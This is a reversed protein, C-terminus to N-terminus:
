IGDTGIVKVDMEALKAKYEQILEYYRWGPIKTMQRQIARLEDVIGEGFKKQLALAYAHINGQWAVNCKACQPWVNRPEFYTSLGLSRPIFHGAQLEQWRRRDGCSICVNMGEADTGRRRVWVSFIKWFQAKTSKKRKPKLFSGSKRKFGTRKM